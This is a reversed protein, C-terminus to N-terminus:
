ATEAREREVGEPADDIPTLLYEAIRFKASGIDVSWSTKGVTFGVGEIEAHPPYPGDIVTGISCRSHRAQPSCQRDPCWGIYCDIGPRIKM